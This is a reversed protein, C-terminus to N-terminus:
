KPARPLQHSGFVPLLRPSSLAFENCLRSCLYRWLYADIIKLSEFCGVRSVLDLNGPSWAGMVLSINVTEKAVLDNGHTKLSIGLLVSIHSMKKVVKM